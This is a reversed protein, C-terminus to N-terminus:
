SPDPPAQTVDNQLFTEPPKVAKTLENFDPLDKIESLGLHQLFEHTTKYLLVRADKASSTKEILGRMLLHRLTYQSNVGRIAEIEARTIPQKYAVIALTELGAETLKERLEANLFDKVYLSSDPNTSLLYSGHHDLLLIGADKKERKL